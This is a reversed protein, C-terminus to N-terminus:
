EGIKPWHGKALSALAGALAIIPWLFRAAKNLFMGMGSFFGLGSKAAKHLEVLERTSDATAKASDATAKTLATNEDISQALVKFQESGQGFRQVVYARFEPESMTKIEEDGIM